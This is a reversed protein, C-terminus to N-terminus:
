FTLRDVRYGSSFNNPIYNCYMYLISTFKLNRMSQIGDIYGKPGNSLMAKEQEEWFLKMEPNLEGTEGMRFMNTFDKQEELDFTKM